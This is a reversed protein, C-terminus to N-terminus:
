TAECIADLEDMTLLDQKKGIRMLLRRCIDVLRGPSGQAATIVKETPSPDQEKFWMDINEDGVIRLRRKLLESLENADWSLIDPVHNQPTVFARLCINSGRMQETLDELASIDNASWKGQGDAFVHIKVGLRQLFFVVDDDEHDDRTPLSKEWESIRRLVEEGDGIPVLGIYRMFDAACGMNANKACLRLLRVFSDQGTPELHQFATPQASIYRALTETVVRALSPVLSRPSSSESPPHIRWYVPFPDVEDPLRSVKKLTENAFYLCTATKGGGARIYFVGPCESQVRDWWRPSVYEQATWKSGERGTTLIEHEAKLSLFPNKELGLYRLGRKVFIAYDECTGELGVYKRYIHVFIPWLYETKFTQTDLRLKAEVIRARFREGMNEYAWVLANLAENKGITEITRNFEANDPLAKLIDVTCVLERPCTNTWTKELLYKARRTIHKEAQLTLYLYAADDFNGRKCAQSINEIQERIERREEERWKKLEEDIFKWQQVAFGVLAPILALYSITSLDGVLQKPLVRYFLLMLPLWIFIFAVTIWALLLLVGRIFLPAALGWWTDGHRWFFPHILSGYLLMGMLSSFGVLVGIVAVHVGNRGLFNLYLYIWSRVSYFSHFTYLALISLAVILLALQWLWPTRSLINRWRQLLNKRRM